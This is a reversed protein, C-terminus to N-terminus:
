DEFIGCEKCIKQAKDWNDIRDENMLVEDSAINCLEWCYGVSIERKVLKCYVMEDTTSM